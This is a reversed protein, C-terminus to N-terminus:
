SWDGLTANVLALVATAATDARMVRPGLSVPQVYPLRQLWSREDESFGGEPGILVAVPQGRALGSLASVPNSVPAHEDCYILPRQAPWADIIRKLDDPECVEPIRLIGCQEAAEIANARMRELNIRDPVTHQTFVPQLLAVGLETAKQVMYDLRARKLPAFLLHIDPGDVQARNQSLLTLQCDRKGSHRVEAQWEGDRGNFILIKQGDPVRLVHRLYHSQDKTCEIVEHDAFGADIYLRQSTFDHIAM